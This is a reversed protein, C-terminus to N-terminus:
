LRISGLSKLECLQVSWLRILLMKSCEPKLVFNLSMGQAREKLSLLSKRFQLDFSMVRCLVADEVTEAKTYLEPRDHDGLTQLGEFGLLDLSDAKREAREQLVLM